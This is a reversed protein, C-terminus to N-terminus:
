CIFGKHNSDTAASSMPRRGSWAPLQRGEEGNGLCPHTIDTRNTAEYAIRSSVPSFHILNRLVVLNADAICTSVLWARTDMNCALAFTVGNETLGWDEDYNSPQTTCARLEKVILLRTEAARVAHM